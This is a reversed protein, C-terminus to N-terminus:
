ARSGRSVKIVSKYIIEKSVLFDLALRLFPGGPPSLHLPSIFPSPPTSLPPLFFCPSVSFTLSLSHSISLYLPFPFPLFSSSSLLIFIFRRCFSYICHLTLMFFGVEIKMEVSNRIMLSSSSVGEGGVSARSRHSFVKRRRARDESEVSPVSM